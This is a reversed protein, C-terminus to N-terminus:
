ACEGDIANVYEFTLCPNNSADVGRWAWVVPSGQVPQLELGTNDDFVSGDLDVSNGQVGADSNNAECANMAYDTSTTGSRANAADQWGTSTRVQETWAYQWRNTEGGVAANGTVRIWMGLEPRDQYPHELFANLAANLGDPRNAIGSTGALREIVKSLKVITEETLFYVKEM